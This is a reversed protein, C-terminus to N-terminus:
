LGKVLLKVLFEKDMATLAEKLKEDDGHAALLTNYQEESLEPRLQELLSSEAAVPEIEDEEFFELQDAFDSVATKFKSKTKAVDIRKEPYLGEIDMTIEVELEDAERVLDHGDGLAKRMANATSDKWVELNVDDQELKKLQKQLYNIIKAKDM